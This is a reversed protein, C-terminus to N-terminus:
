AAFQTDAPLMGLLEFIIPGSEFTVPVPDNMAGSEATEFVFGLNENIVFAVVVPGAQRM